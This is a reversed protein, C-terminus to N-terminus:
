ECQKTFGYRVGEVIDRSHLCYYEFTRVCTNIVTTNWYTIGQARESFRSYRLTVM